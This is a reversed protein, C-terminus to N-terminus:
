DSGTMGTDAGHRGADEKVIESPGFIGYRSCSEKKRKTRVFWVRSWGYHVEEDKSKM